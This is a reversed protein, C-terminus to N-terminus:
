PQDEKMPRSSSGDKLQVAQKQRVTGPLRRFWPLPVAIARKLKSPSAPPTELASLFAQTAVEIAGLKANLATELQAFEKTNGKETVTRLLKDLPTAYAEWAELFEDMAQDIDKTDPNLILKSRCAIIANVAEEGKRKAADRTKTVYLFRTIRSDRAPQYELLVNRFQRTCTLLSVCVERWYSIKASQAEEKAQHERQRKDGRYKLYSVLGGGGFLVGVVIGVIGVVFASPDNM